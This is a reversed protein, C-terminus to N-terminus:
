KISRVFHVCLSKTRCVVACAYCSATITPGQLHGPTADQPEEGDPSQVAPGRAQRQLVVRFQRAYRGAGLPHSGRAELGEGVCGVEHVQTHPLILIITILLLLVLLLLTIATIIIVMIFIIIILIILVIVIIIITIIVKVRTMQWRAASTSYRGQMAGGSRRGPDGATLGGASPPGLALGGGTRLALGGGCSYQTRWGSTKTTAAGSLHPLSESPRAVVGDDDDDDDDDDDNWPVGLPFAQEHRFIM